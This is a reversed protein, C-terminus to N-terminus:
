STHQPVVSLVAVQEKVANACKLSTTNEAIQSSGIIVIDRPESALKKLAMKHRYSPILVVLVISLPVLRTWHKWRM